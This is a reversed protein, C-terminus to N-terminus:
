SADAIELLKILTKVDRLIYICRRHARDQLKSPAMRIAKTLQLLARYLEESDHCKYYEAISLETTRLKAFVFESQALESEIACMEGILDNTSKFFFTSKASEVKKVQYKGLYFFFPAYAEIAKVSDTENITDEALQQYYNHLINM